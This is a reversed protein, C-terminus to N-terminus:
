PEPGRACAELGQVCALFSRVGLSKAKRKPSTLRARLAGPKAIPAGLRAGPSRLRANALGLAKRVLSRAGAALSQAERALSRAKRALSPLRVTPAPLRAPLPRSAIAPGAPPASQATPAPLPCISRSARRRPRTDSRIRAPYRAKGVASSVALLHLCSQRPSFDKETLRKRKESAVIPLKGALRHAPIRCSKRLPQTCRRASPVPIKRFM